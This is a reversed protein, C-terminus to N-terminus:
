RPYQDCIFRYMSEGITDPIAYEYEQAFSPFTYSDVKNEMSSYLAISLSKIRGNDCDAERLMKASKYFKGNPSKRPKNLEHKFWARNSTRGAIDGYLSVGDKDKGLYVWDAAMVQMAAGCLMAALILKKM